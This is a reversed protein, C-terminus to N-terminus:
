VNLGTHRKVSHNENKSVDDTTCSRVIIAKMAIMAIIRLAKIMRTRTTRENPRHCYPYRGSKDYMSLKIQRGAQRGGVNSGYPVYTAYMALDAAVVRRAHSNMFSAISSNPEAAM